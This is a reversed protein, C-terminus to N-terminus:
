DASIKDKIKDFTSQGIIKRATLEEIQSYPRGDIIKQSTVSGVGPLSDLDSATANNINIVSGGINKSSIASSDSLVEEGTRPIYMKLGDSVIKALNINKQVWDRDADESMGGAAALADVVRSKSDVSYVGPNIVAGEVDVVIKDEVVKNQEFVLPPSDSKHSFVQILGLIVLILGISGLLIPIINGKLLSSIRDSDM